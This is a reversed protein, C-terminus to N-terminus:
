YAYLRGYPRHSLPLLKTFKKDMIENADHGFYDAFKAVYNSIIDIDDGDAELQSVEKGLQHDEVEGRLYIVGGHMGTGIFNAGHKENERLNMFVALAGSYRAVNQSHRLTYHAKADITNLLANTSEVYSAKIQNYLDGFKLKLEDISYHDIIDSVDDDEAVWIRILNRGGQKARYLALDARKILEHSNGLDSQYDALGISVTIRISQKEDAFTEESIIQHLRVVYEMAEDASMAM